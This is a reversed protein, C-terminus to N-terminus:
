EAYPAETEKVEKEYYDKTMIYLDEAESGDTSYWLIVLEEADFVTQGKSDTATCMYAKIVPLFEYYYWYYNFYNGPEDILDNYMFCYRFMDNINGLVEYDKKLLTERVKQHNMSKDRVCVAGSYNLLWHMNRAHYYAYLFSKNEKEAQSVLYVDDRVFIKRDKFLLMLLSDPYEGSEQYQPQYFTQNLPRVSPMVKDMLRVNYLLGIVAMLVLYVSLIYVKYEKKIKMLIAALVSLGIMVVYRM